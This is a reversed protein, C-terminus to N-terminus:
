PRCGGMAYLLLFLLPLPNFKWIIEGRGGRGGVHNYSTSVRAVGHWLRALWNLKIVVHM